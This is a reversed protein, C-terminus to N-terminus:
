SFFSSSHQSYILFYQKIAVRVIASRAEILRRMMVRADSLVSSQDFLVRRLIILIQIRAIQMKITAIGSPIGIAMERAIAREILPNFFLLMKILFRSDIWYHPISWSTHM